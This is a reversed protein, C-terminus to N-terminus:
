QHVQFVQDSGPVYDEARRNVIQDWNYRCVPQTRDCGATLSFADGIAIDLAFPEKIVFDVGGTQTFIEKAVGANKGSTFKITGEAYFGSALAGGTGDAPMGGIPNIAFQRRNTVAAITGARVTGAVNAVCGAELGSGGGGFKIVRCRPTCLSGVYQAMNQALSRLEVQFSLDGISVKGLTGYGVIARQTVDKWNVMYVTYIAGDYRTSLLDDETISDSRLGGAVEMNSVALGLQDQIATPTFSTRAEYDVADFQLLRDHDTFGMIVGDQRDLRWCLCFTHARSNLSAQMAPPINRAM